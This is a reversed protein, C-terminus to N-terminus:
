VIECWWKVFANQNVVDLTLIFSVTGLQKNWYILEDVAKDRNSYLKLKEVFALDVVRRFRMYDWWIYEIHDVQHLQDKEHFDVEYDKEEKSTISWMTDILLKHAHLHHNPNHYADQYMVSLAFLAEYTNASQSYGPSITEIKDKLYSHRFIYFNKSLQSEDIQNNELSYLFPYLIASLKTWESRWPVSEFSILLKSLAQKKDTHDLHLEPLFDTLFEQYKQSSSDM